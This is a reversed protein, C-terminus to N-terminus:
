QFPNPAHLATALLATSMPIRLVWHAAPRLRAPLFRVYREGLVEAGIWGFGALAIGAAPAGPGLTNFFTAMSDYLGFSWGVGAAAGHALFWRRARTRREHTQSDVPPPAPPPTVTIHFGPPLGSGQDPQTQEAPPEKGVAWWRPEEDPTPMPTRRSTDHSHGFPRAHLTRLYARTRLEDGGPSSQADM